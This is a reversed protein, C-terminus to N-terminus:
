KCCGSGVGGDSGTGDCCCWGGSGTASCGGGGTGGGGSVFNFKLWHANLAQDRAKHTKFFSANWKKRVKRDIQHKKKVHFFFTWRVSLM